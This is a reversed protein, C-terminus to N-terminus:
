AYIRFGPDKTGQRNVALRSAAIGGANVGCTVPVRFGGSERRPINM